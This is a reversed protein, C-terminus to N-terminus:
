YLRRVEFTTTNLAYLSADQSGPAICTFVIWQRNYTPCPPSKPGPPM